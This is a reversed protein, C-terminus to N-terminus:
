RFHDVAGAAKMAGTAPLSKAPAGKTIPASPFVNVPALAARREVIYSTVTASDNVPKTNPM